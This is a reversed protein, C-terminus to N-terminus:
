RSSQLKKSKNFRAIALQILKDLLQSQSIGSIEWLKPYMSISTFGPITNIENIYFKSGRRGAPLNKSLFMDVRAMGECCLTKYAKIALKQAIKIQSSTLKAPVLLKAGNEDLYKAAYDYYEHKGQPVIEGPLSAIPDENGLVSIEIERGNIAQEIIVKRDYKFALNVAKLLDTKRKVKTIGVSSGLNAPKVFVPFPLPLAALTFRNTLVVFKATPIKADRLLRKQVDKDMGVASGLVNAGVYPVKTMELFGQLTGDEGNTGHLVPFVVFNAKISTIVSNPNTTLSGTVQSTPTANQALQLLTPGQVWSGKKTIGIPIVDYKNRDLSSIINKASLLSVEHEVSQGGFIVIIKTKRKM